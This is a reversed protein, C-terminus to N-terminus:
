FLQIPGYGLWQFHTGLKQLVTGSNKYIIIGRCPKPQAARVVELYLNLQNVAEPTYTLKTEIIIIEDPQHILIDPSCIKGNDLRDLYLYWPNHEVKYGQKILRNRVRREYQLGLIQVRTRAQPFSRPEIRRAFM